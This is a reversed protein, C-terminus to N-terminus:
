YDQPILSKTKWCRATYCAFGNETRKFYAKVEVGFANHEDTVIFTVYCGNLDLNMETFEIDSTCNTQEDCEGVYKEVSEMLKSITDRNLILAM